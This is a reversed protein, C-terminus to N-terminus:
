SVIIHGDQNGSDSFCSVASSVFTLKDSYEMAM